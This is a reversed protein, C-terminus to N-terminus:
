KYTNFKRWFFSMLIENWDLFSLISYVCQEYLVCKPKFGSQQLCKKDSRYRKLAKIEKKRGGPLQIDKTCSIPHEAFSANVGPIGIQVNVEAPSPAIRNLALNILCKTYRSDIFFWLIVSILPYIYFVISVNHISIYIIIYTFMSFRCDCCCHQVTVM